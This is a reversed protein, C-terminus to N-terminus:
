SKQRRKEFISLIDIIFINFLPRILINIKKDFVGTSNSLFTNENNFIMFLTIFMEVDQAFNQGFNIRSNSLFHLFAWIFALFSM